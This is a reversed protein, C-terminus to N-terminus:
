TPRIGHRLECYDEGSPVWAHRPSLLRLPPHPRLWQLDLRTHVVRTYRWGHRRETQAM